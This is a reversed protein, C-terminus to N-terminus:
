INSDNHSDSSVLYTGCFLHEATSNSNPETCDVCTNGFETAQGIPCRECNANVMIYGAKCGLCIYLNGYTKLLVFYGNRGPKKQKTLNTATVRLHSPSSLM